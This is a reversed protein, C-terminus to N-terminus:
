RKNLQNLETIRRLNLKEALEILYKEADEKREWWGYPAEPTSMHELHAEWFALDNTSISWPANHAPDGGELHIWYGIPTFYAVENKNLM